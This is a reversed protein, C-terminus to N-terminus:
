EGFHLVRETEVTEGERKVAIVEVSTVGTEEETLHPYQSDGTDLQVSVCIKYETGEADSINRFTYTFCGQSIWGECGVFAMGDSCDLGYSDLADLFDSFDKKFDSEGRKKQAFLSELDEYSGGTLCEQLHSRYLKLSEMCEPSVSEYLAQDYPDWEYSVWHLESNRTYDFEHFAFPNYRPYRDVFSFLYCLLVVHDYYAYWDNEKGLAYFEQGTVNATVGMRSNNTETIPDMSQEFYFHDPEGPYVFAYDIGGTCDREVGDPFNNVWHGVELYVWMDGCDYYYYSYEVPKGDEYRTATEIKWGYDSALRDVDFYAQGDEEGLYEEVDFPLRLFVPSLLDAFIMYDYTDDPAETEPVVVDRYHYEYISTTGIAPDVTLDESSSPADPNDVDSISAGSSASTDQDSAPRAKGCGCSLLMMCALLFAM